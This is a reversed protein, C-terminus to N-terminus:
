QVSEVQSRDHHSHELMRGRWVYGVTIIMGRVRAFLVYIYMKCIPAMPLM